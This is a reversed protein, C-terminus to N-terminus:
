QIVLPKWTANAVSTAQCCPFSVRGSVQNRGWKQSKGTGIISDLKGSSATDKRSKEYQIGRSVKEIKSLLTQALNYQSLIM